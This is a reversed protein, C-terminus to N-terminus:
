VHRWSENNIINYVVRVSIGYCASFERVSLCFKNERINKVIADTLKSNPHKEGAMKKHFGIKYSHKMNESPTVWELNKLRNDTKNGNKHNCELDSYGVFAQLVLRHVRFFIRKGNKCLGVRLYGGDTKLDFIFGAHNRKCNKAGTWEKPLSRVRGFNSVEYLGEYGKIPKWIEKQM